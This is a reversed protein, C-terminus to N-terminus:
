MVMAWWGMAMAELAMMRGPVVRWGPSGARVIELVGMERPEETKMMPLRVLGRGRGRGAM